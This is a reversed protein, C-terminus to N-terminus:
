FNILVMRHSGGNPYFMAVSNFKTEKRASVTKNVLLEFKAYCTLKRTIDTELISPLWYIATHTVCDPGIFATPM